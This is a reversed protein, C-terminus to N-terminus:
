KRSGEVRTDGGVLDDVATEIVLVSATMHLARNVEVRNLREFLVNQSLCVKRIGTPTPITFAILPDQHEM